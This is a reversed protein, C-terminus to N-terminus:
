STLTDRTDLDLASPILHYRPFSKQCIQCKRLHRPKDNLFMSKRIHNHYKEYTSLYSTELVSFRGAMSANPTSQRQQPPFARSTVLLPIRDKLSHKTVEKRPYLEWIVELKTYYRHPHPMARELIMGLKSKIDTGMELTSRNSKRRQLTAQPLELKAM